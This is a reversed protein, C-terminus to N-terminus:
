VQRVIPEFGLIAYGKKLGIIGRYIYKITRRHIRGTFRGDIFERKRLTDGVAFKPIRDDRRITFDKIGQESDNYYEPLVKVDHEM